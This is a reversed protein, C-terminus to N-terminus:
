AKVSPEPPLIEVIEALHNGQLDRHINCRGYLGTSESLGFAETILPDSQVQFYAQPCSEHLISHDNLITGLPVSEGLILERAAVPFHELHIAIAGFEVPKNEEGAELIVERTYAAETEERNILRLHIRAGHFQELTPTMDDAHVLLRRYPEPMDEGDIPILEPASEGARQYFELLPRASEHLTLNPLTDSM